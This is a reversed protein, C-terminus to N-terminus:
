GIFLEVGVHFFEALKKALAKSIGRRGSLIASVQARSGVVPALDAQKLSKQELLYALMERPSPHPVAYREDDYDAILKEILKALAKEERTPSKKFTLGELKEVMRDFEKDNEIVKPLVEACLDGYKVPDLARLGMEVM